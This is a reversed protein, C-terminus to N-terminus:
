SRAEAELGLAVGQLLEDLDGEIIRDLKNLTLGVRHDSVRNQPFSYTRIRESRAGRGIQGRREEAREDALRQQEQDYLRSRLM